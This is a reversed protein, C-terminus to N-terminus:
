DQLRKEQEVIQRKRSQTLGPLFRRTEIYYIYEAQQKAAADNIRNPYNGRILQIGNEKLLSRDTYRGYNGLMMIKAEAQTRMRSAGNYIFATAIYDWKQENIYTRLDYKCINTGVYEFRGTFYHLSVMADYQAQTMKDLPFLSKFRREKNKFDELWYSYSQSETLGIGDNHKTTNYGIRKTGESDTYQYPIWKFQRLAFNLLLPSAELIRIEKEETIAIKDTVPYLSFDKLMETTVTTPRVVYNPM